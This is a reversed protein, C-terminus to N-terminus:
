HRADPRGPPNIAAELIGAAQLLLNGVRELEPAPAVQHARACILEAGEIAGRLAVLLGRLRPTM